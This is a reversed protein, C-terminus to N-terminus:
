RQQQAPATLFDALARYYNVTAAVEKAAADAASLERRNVKFFDVSGLELRRREAQAMRDAARRQRTTLAVKEYAVNLAVAAARVEVEVKDEALQTKSRLARLKSRASRLKGREKRLLLPMELKVGVGVDLPQLTDSGSGIDKAIWGQLDIQPAVENKRLDVDVQLRQQKLRMMALDPRKAQGREVARTLTAEDIRRPRPLALPLESDKPTRRSGDPNRLYLSLKLASSALKGRASVVIAERGAVMRESDIALVEEADGKVIRRRVNSLRTRAVELLQERITLQQGSEVWNWYAQTAANELLLGVFARQQRASLVGFEARRIQARMEDIVGGRWIPMEFGASFEGASLTELDGDYDAFSGFGRRWGAYVRAGWLPTQQEVRAFAQGKVYKGTPQGKVGLKVKPDFVGESSLLEGESQALMATAQEFTPHTSRLRKIITNLTLPRAAREPPDLDDRTPESDLTGQGGVPVAGAPAALPLGSPSGVVPGAASGAAPQAAATQVTAPLRKAAPRLKAEPKTPKAPRTPQPANPTAEPAAPQAAAAPALSLSLALATLQRIGARM